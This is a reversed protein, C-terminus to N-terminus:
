PAGASRFSKELDHARLHSRPRSDVRPYREAERRPYKDEYHDTKPGAPPQTETVEPAVQPVGYDESSLAADSTTIVDEEASM